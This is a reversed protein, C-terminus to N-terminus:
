IGWGMDKQVMSYTIKKKGEGGLTDRNNSPSFGNSNHFNWTNPPLTKSEFIVYEM